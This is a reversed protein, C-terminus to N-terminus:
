NKDKEFGEKSAGNGLYNANLLVKEIDIDKFKM